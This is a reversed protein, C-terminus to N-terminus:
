LLENNKWGWEAKETKNSMRTTDLDIKKINNKYNIQKNFSPKLLFFEFTYKKFAYKNLAINKFM